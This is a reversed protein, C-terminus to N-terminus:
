CLIRRSSKWEISILYNKRHLLFFGARFAKKYFNRNKLKVTVQGYANSIAYYFSM